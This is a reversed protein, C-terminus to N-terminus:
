DIVTANFEDIHLGSTFKCWVDDSLESQSHGNCTDEYRSKTKDGCLPCIGGEYHFLYFLDYKWRFWIKKFENNMSLKKVAEERNNAHIMFLDDDIILQYCHKPDITVSTM